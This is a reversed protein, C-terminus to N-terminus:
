AAMQFVTQLEGIQLVDGDNLTRASRIPQGNLFAPFANDLQELYYRVRARKIVINGITLEGVSPLTQRETRGDEWRFALSPRSQMPQAAVQRQSAYVQPVNRQEQSGVWGSLALLLSGVVGLLLPQYNDAVFPPLLRLTDFHWRDNVAQAQQYRQEFNNLWAIDLDMSQKVTLMNAPVGKWSEISVYVLDVLQAANSVLDAGAGPMAANSAVNTFFNRWEWAEQQITELAPLETVGAVATAIDGLGESVDDLSRSVVRSQQYLNELVADGRELDYVRLQALDHSLTEAATLAQLNDDFVAIKHVATDVGGVLLKVKRGVPILELLTMAQSDDLWTAFVAAQETKLTQRLFDAQSSYGNLRVTRQPEAAVETILEETLIRYPDLVNIIRAGMFLALIAAGLFLGVRYVKRFM